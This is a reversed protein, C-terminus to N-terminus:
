FFELLIDKIHFHYIFKKHALLIQRADFNIHYPMLLLESSKKKPEYQQAQHHLLFSFIFSKTMKLTGNDKLLNSPFKQLMRKM